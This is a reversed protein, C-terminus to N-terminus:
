TASRKLNPRHEIAGVIKTQHRIENCKFAYSKRAYDFLKNECVADPVGEYEITLKGNQGHISVRGGWENVLHEDVWAIKGLADQSLGSNNKDTFDPLRIIHILNIKREGTKSAAKHAIDALYELQLQTREVRHDSSREAALCTIGAFALYMVGISIMLMESIQLMSTSVTTTRADSMMLQGQHKIPEFHKEVNSYYVVFIEGLFSSLNHTQKMKKTNLLFEM